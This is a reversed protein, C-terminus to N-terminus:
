RSRGRTGPIATRLMWRGMGCAAPAAMGRMWRLGTSIKMVLNVVGALADSGYVASSGVPLVEIRDIAAAPISSLDFYGNYGGETRQGDILVLTTGFPLGHLRVSRQSGYSAFANGISPISVQPLNNLFDAVTTQGSREMDARTYVEVPQAQQRATLPIRSGTVVVEDLDIVGRQLMQPEDTALVVTTENLFHYKLGTGALLRHLAQDATLQEKLPAAQRDGVLKRDVFINLNTRNAVAVLADALSQAPIDFSYTRAQEVQALLPTTSLALAAVIAPLSLRLRHSRYSM